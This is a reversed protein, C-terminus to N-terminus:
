KKSAKQNNLKRQELITERIFTYPQAYEEEIFSGIGLEDIGEEDTGEELHEYFNKLDEDNFKFKKAMEKAQKLEAKTLKIRCVYESCNPMLIIVDEKTLQKISKAM